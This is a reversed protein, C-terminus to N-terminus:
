RETNQRVEGTGPRDGLPKTGQTTRTTCPFALISRVNITHVRAGPAHVQRQQGQECETRQGVDPCLVRYLPKPGAHTPKAHGRAHGIKHEGDDVQGEPDGQERASRKKLRRRQNASTSDESQVHIDQHEPM